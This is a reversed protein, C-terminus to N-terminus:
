PREQDRRERHHLYRYKKPIKRRLWPWKRLAWVALRRAPPFDPALLMASIALCLIGQLFPLFLGLVGAIFFFIGLTIRTVRGIRKGRAEDTVV